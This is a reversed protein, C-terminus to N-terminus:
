RKRQNNKDDDQSQIILHMILSLQADAVKALNIFYDKLEDNKGNVAGRMAQQKTKTIADQWNKLEETIIM